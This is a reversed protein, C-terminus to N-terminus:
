ARRNQARKHRRNSSPELFGRIKTRRYHLEGSALLDVLTHATPMDQLVSYTRGIGAPGHADSAACVVIDFRDAWSQIKQLPTYINRGNYLEVIDIHDVLINLATMQLSTKAGRLAYAPHPIYVLGGQERIAAITDLASMGPPITQNLYLGIIEGDRTLVEEGVIVADGLEKKAQLAFEATDHDTIAVVDLHELAVKYDDLSLGGDHSALSHTHLDIKISM